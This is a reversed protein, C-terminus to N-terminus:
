VESPLIKGFKALVAPMALKCKDDTDQSLKCLTPLLFKCVLKNAELNTMNEYLVVSCDYLTLISQLRVELHQDKTLVVLVQIINETLKLCSIGIDLM